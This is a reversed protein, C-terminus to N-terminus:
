NLAHDPLEVSLTHGLESALDVLVQLHDLLCRERAHTVPLQDHDHEVVHTGAREPAITLHVARTRTGAHGLYGSHVEIPLEASLVVTGIAVHYGGLEVLRMSSPVSRGDLRLAVTLPRAPV